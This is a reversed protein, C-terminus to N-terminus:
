PPLSKSNPGAFQKAWCFHLERWYLDFGLRAFSAKPRLVLGSVWGSSIHPKLRCTQTNMHMSPIYNCHTHATSQRGGGKFSDCHAPTGAPHAIFLATTVTLSLAYHSLSCRGSIDTYPEKKLGSMCKETLTFDPRLVQM